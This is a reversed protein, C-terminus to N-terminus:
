IKEKLTLFKECAEDIVAEDKACCIRLYRSDGSNYFANGPVTAINIENLLWMAKSKSNDGPIIEADAMIYYAGDPALAKLGAQNLTDVLKNRIRQYKNKLEHYYSQAINRIGYLLAHQLPAPACVYVLDSIQGISEAINEPAISYGIRWGTISFTKSYGSITITIDALSPLSAPSVHKKDDYVFYEYIEDTIIFCNKSRCIEGIKTLEEVTFVKGSPNGPTNILVAKTKNTIVSELLAFDIELNPMNLPVFIPEIDLSLLTNVHYGYFPEFVVVQDGRELLAMCACYFAGTAGSSVTINREDCQIKNFNRSKEAVAKRLDLIGGHYTYSNFGKLMAVNAAKVLGSPLPLDCVGQSLNIAGIKDSENTMDRIESKSIARSKQTLNLFSKTM